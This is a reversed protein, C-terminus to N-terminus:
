AIRKDTQSQPIGRAAQTLARVLARKALDVKFDNDGSGRAQALFRDAFSEFAGHIKRGVLGAEAARDRWPKHAVGGMAVAAGSILGDEIDLRVAVSVLAFAYSQRDRLKLYTHNLGGKAPPLEVATILEGEALTNDFQPTDGPLRHFSDFSINRHGQPGEIHVVADLAALAVCM